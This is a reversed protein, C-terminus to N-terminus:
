PICCRARKQIVPGCPLSFCAQPSVSFEPKCPKAKPALIPYQQITSNHFQQNFRLITSNNLGGVVERPQPVGGVMWREDMWWFFHTLPRRGM